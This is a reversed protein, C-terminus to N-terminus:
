MTKQSTQSINTLSVSFDGGNALNDIPVSASTLKMLELRGSNNDTYYIATTSYIGSVAKLEQMSLGLSKLELSYSTSIGTYDVPVYPNGGVRLTSEFLGSSLEGTYAHNYSKRTLEFAWFMWGGLRSKWYIVGGNFLSTSPYLIPTITPTLNTLGINSLNAKLFTYGKWKEALYQESIGYKQFETIPSSSTVQPTFGGFDRGGIIPLKRVTIPDETKDSYIKFRYIVNSIIADKNSNLLDTINAIKYVNSNHIQQAIEMVDFTFSKGTNIDFEAYRVLTEVTSGDVISILEVDVYFKVALFNDEYVNIRLPEYLYCYSVTASVDQGLIESAITIAM